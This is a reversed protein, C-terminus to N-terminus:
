QMKKIKGTNDYLIIFDIKGNCPKRKETMALRGFAPTAIEYKTVRLSNFWLRSGYVLFKVLSFFM